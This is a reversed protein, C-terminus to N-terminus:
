LKSGIVPIGSCHAESAVRGWAEEWQSPVLLIRAKGYVSKMDNTRPQLTVHPLDSLRRVLDQRDEDPIPWSEVFSFPIDPCLRALDLAVDLGKASHPNVFTVNMRTTPTAYAAQEVLPPIVTSSVGFTERYKRATFESNAIFVAGSLETLDGDLEQLEANRFYIVVPVGSKSLSRALAFTDHGQQIVAIHPKFRNVIESADIPDWARYVPYGLRSDRSFRYGTVRRQVRSYFEVWGGNRLKCLVAARHRSDRLRLALQHTSSQVGGSLQPLYANGTAFLVRM